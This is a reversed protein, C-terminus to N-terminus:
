RRFSSRPGASAETIPDHLSDVLIQPGDRQTRPLADWWPRCRAREPRCSASNTRHAKGGDGDNEEHYNDDAHDILKEPRHAAPAHPRWRAAHNAEVRM